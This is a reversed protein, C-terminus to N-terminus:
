NAHGWMKSSELGSVQGRAARASQLALRAEGPIYASNNSHCDVGLSCLDTVDLDERFAPLPFGMAMQLETSPTTSIHVGKEKYLVGDEKTMNSSHAILFREDVIHEIAKPISQGGMMIPGRCYHITILPIKFEALKSMLMDLYQKPLYQFADFAFGITVRGDGQPSAEVLEEFTGMTNGGLAGNQDTEFPEWSKLRPNPCYCFISRLGAASTASIANYDESLTLM